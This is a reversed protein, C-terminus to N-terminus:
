GGAQGLTDATVKAVRERVPALAASRGFGLQAEQRQISEMQPAMEARFMRMRSAVENERKRKSPGFGYKEGRQVAKIAAEREQKNLKRAERASPTLASIGRMALPVGAAIAGTALGTKVGAASLLGATAIGAGM